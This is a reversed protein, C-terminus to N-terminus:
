RLSKLYSQLNTKEKNLGLKKRIQFRLLDIADKSVNLFGAIDKTTRGERILTAVELQRPTFKFGQINHLFPSIIENLNSEVLGISMQQVPDLVNKKLKKVHPMVLQQVNALIKEELEKRDEERRKLLVKLATNAEELSQREADLTKEAAKKETIDQVTGEYYLMKGHEDRVGRANMSVYKIVGDQRRVQFEFDQVVGAHTLIDVLELRRAPDAYLQEPIDTILEILEEPTKSGFMSALSPNASIFRGDPTSQFIGEQANEFINRYKKESEKLENTREEVLRELHEQYDKLQKEIKKRDTLDRVASIRLKRGDHEFERPNVEIPFVGGDKRLGLTEYIGETRTRMREDTFTRREPVIFDTAPRGRLDEGDYGFLRNLAENADVIIADESFVIAELSAESLSRFREESKKLREEMQKRDTIDRDIGRYGVVTGLTDLIPVGSTELVVCRGDKHANINELNRIPQANDIIPQVILAIRDAEGPQMLDFPTKGLVEEVSYGLLETVKPSVYTYVGRSDIEWIWDSTTEVLARLRGQSIALAKEQKKLSVKSRRSTDKKRQTHAVQRMLQEKPKNNM